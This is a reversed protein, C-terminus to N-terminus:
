TTSPVSLGAFSATTPGYGAILGTRWGCCACAARAASSRRAVREVSWGFRRAGPTPAHLWSRAPFYKNHKEGREEMKVAVGQLSCRAPNAAIEPACTM